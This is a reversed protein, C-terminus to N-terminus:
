LKRIMTKIILIILFLVINLTVMAIVLALIQAVQWSTILFSLIVLPWISKLDALSPGVMVGVNLCIALLLWTQWTLFNFSRIFNLFTLWFNGSTIVLIDQLWFNNILGIIFLGGVLPGIATLMPGVIPLTPKYHTVQGARATVRFGTVRGGTLLCFFAHWFEHLFIGLWTLPRLWKLDLYRERLYVSLYGLILIIILYFGIIM